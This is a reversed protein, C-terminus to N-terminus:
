TFQPSMQAWRNKATMGERIAREGNNIRVRELVEVPFKKTESDKM